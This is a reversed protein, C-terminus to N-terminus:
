LRVNDFLLFFNSIATVFRIRCANRRVLDRGLTKARILGDGVVSCFFAAAFVTTDLDNYFEVSRGISLVALSMM